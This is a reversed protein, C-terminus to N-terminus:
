GVSKRDLIRHGQAAIVDRRLESDDDILIHRALIRPAGPNFILFHKTWSLCSVCSILCIHETHEHREHVTITKLNFSSHYCYMAPRARCSRYGAPRPLVTARTRPPPARSAACNRSGCYGCAEPRASRM